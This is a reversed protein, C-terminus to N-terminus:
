EGIIYISVKSWEHKYLAVSMENIHEITIFKEKVLAVLFDSYAEYIKRGRGQIMVILRSSIVGGFIFDNVKTRNKPLQQLTESVTTFATLKKHHWLASLNILFDQTILDPRNNVSFFLM